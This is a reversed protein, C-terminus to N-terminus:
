NNDALVFFKNIQMKDADYLFLLHLYVATIIGIFNPGFSVIAGLIIFPVRDSIRFNLLLYAYFFDIGSNRRRPQISENINFFYYRLNVGNPKLSIFFSGRQFL